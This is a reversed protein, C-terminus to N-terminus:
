ISVTRQLLEKVTKVTDAYYPRYDLGETFRLFQEGIARVQAAYQARPILYSDLERPSRGQREDLETLELFGGERHRVRFSYGRCEPDGCGCIVFPVRHWESAEAWRDPEVDEVISLLLAPLGVDVCMPEDILVVGDIEMLVDAHIVQLDADHGWGSYKLVLESM